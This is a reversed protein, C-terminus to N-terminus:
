FGGSTARHEGSRTKLITTFTNNTYQHCSGACNRLEVATYLVTTPTETKKHSGPKFNGAHCAYCNPPEYATVGAITETNAKHCGQCNANVGANHATFYASTHSYTVPLQFGGATTSHHCSDCARTTVMHGTPKGIAQSGNHCNACSGPVVGTHNFGAGAFTTYGAHCTDCSATTAVHNAPKGLANWQTYSGNHCAACQGAIVGQTASHTFTSTTFTGGTSHCADCSLTTPIHNAPKFTTASGGQTHCTACSGPVVGTHTFTSGSMAFSVYGTHCTDCSATTAVHNAHKGLANMATFSGNHCTACQLPLVGQTASHTFRSTTFTGGTTHCADCSLSTPIHNSPKRTATSGHCTACAGPMVGLHTFAASMWTTTRHCTDCPQNTAPHNAPKGPAISNNHCQGCQRPMVGVHTFRAVKWSATSSHCQNCAQNTPIHNSPKVTASQVRSGPTHCTECKKPTGKFTGQIHCTECPLSVHAGTLPFGTKVHDFHVNRRTEAALTDGHAFALLFLGLAALAGVRSSLRRYHDASNKMTSKRAQNILIIPRIFRLPAPLSTKHASSRLAASYPSM